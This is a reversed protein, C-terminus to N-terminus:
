QIDRPMAYIVLSESSMFFALYMEQRNVIHLWQVLEPQLNVLASLWWVCQAAFLYSKARFITILKGFSYLLVESENEFTITM